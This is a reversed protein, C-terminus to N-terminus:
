SGTFADPAPSNPDYTSGYGLQRVVRQLILAQKGTQFTTGSPRSIETFGAAATEAANDWTTQDAQALADYAAISAVIQANSAGLMIRSLYNPWVEAGMTRGRAWEVLTDTEGTLGLGGARVRAVIAASVAIYDRVTVQNDTNPNSPVVYSRAVNQGRRRTYVVSKAFQGRAEQSFLPGTVLAM